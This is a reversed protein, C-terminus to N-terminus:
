RGAPAVLQEPTVALVTALQRITRFRAKRKGVELESITSANMGAQAALEQQTLFKAERAARLGPLGAGVPQGDEASRDASM